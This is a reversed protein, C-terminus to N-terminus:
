QPHQTRKIPLKAIIGNATLIRVQSMTPKSANKETM